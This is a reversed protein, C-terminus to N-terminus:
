QTNHIEAKVIRDKGHLDKKVEINKYGDHVLLDHVEKGLTENIEFFLKGHTNLHRLGFAAITRYFLLVDEDPVFLAIHPEHQLVNKHMANAESQKVYPPNSVIIDFAPLKSWENKDLINLLHFNIQTQQAAANRKAINLAGKSIDLAHIEVPSLKKKLAVAICGSGTGIDLITLPSYHTTFSLDTIQLGSISSQFGSVEKVILEVLEETEPRPILVNADVYFKIGAFWAENLVYQAPKHQLLQITYDNLLQIQKETLLFQKNIIRDTKKYGTIYEIVMDAINAAERKDYMEYLQFLLQQYIKQITM